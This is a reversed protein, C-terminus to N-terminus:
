LPTVSSSHVAGLHAWMDMVIRARWPSLTRRYRELLGLLEAERLGNIDPVEGAIRQLYQERALRVAPSM